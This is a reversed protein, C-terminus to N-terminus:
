RGKLYGDVLINGLPNKQQKKVYEEGGTLIFGDSWIRSIERIM